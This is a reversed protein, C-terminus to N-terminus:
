FLYAAVASLILLSVGTLVGLLMTSLQSSVEVVFNARDGSSMGRFSEASILQYVKWDEGAALRSMGGAIIMLGGAIFFANSYTIPSDWQKAYGLVGILGAIVITLFLIKACLKLITMIVFRKM